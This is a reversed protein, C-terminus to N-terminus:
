KKFLFPAVLFFYVISYMCYSYYDHKIVRSLKFRLGDLRVSSLLASFLNNDTM